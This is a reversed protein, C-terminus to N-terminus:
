KLRNILFTQNLIYLPLGNQDSTLKIGVVMNNLHVETITFGIIFHYFFILFKKIKKKFGM